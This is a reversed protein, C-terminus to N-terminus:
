SSARSRPPAQILKPVSSRTPRPISSSTVSSSFRPTTTTSSRRATASSATGSAARARKRGTGDGVVMLVTRLWSRSFPESMRACSGNDATLDEVLLDALHEKKARM